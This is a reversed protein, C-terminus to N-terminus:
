ARYDDRADLCEYRLNFNSMIKEHFDSFDHNQFAQDWSTLADQKLDHGTRWPKFLTLMAACYYERDGKDKRPLLGGVFNPVHRDTDERVRVHHTAHMPHGDSFQLRRIKKRSPSDDDEVIFRDLSDSADELDDPDVQVDDDSCCSDGDLDGTGIEREDDDTDHEDVHEDRARGSHASSDSSRECLCMWDYLSMSELDLPRHVYDEVPSVGMI